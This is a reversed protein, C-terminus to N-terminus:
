NDLIDSPQLKEVHFIWKGNYSYGSDVRHHGLKEAIKLNIDRFIKHAQQMTMETKESIEKIHSRGFKGSVVPAPILVGTREIWEKEYQRHAFEHRNGHFRYHESWRCNNNGKM